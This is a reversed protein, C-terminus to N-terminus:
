ELRRTGRWVRMVVIRFGRLVLTVRDLLQYVAAAVLLAQQLNLTPELALVGVDALKHLPQQSGHLHVVHEDLDILHLELALHLAVVVM